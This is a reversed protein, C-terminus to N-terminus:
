ISQPDSSSIEQLRNKDNYEWRITFYAKYSATTIHEDVPKTLYCGVFFGKNKFYETFRKAFDPYYKYLIDCETVTLTVWDFGRGASNLIARDVLDIQKKYFADLDKQLKLERAKETRQTLTIALEANIETRKLFRNGIKRLLSMIWM